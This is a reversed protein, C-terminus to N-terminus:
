AKPKSRFQKAMFADADYGFLKGSPISDDQEVFWDYEGTGYGENDTREIGYASCNLGIAKATDEASKRDFPGAITKIAM